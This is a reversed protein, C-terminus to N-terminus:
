PPGGRPKCKRNGVNGNSYYECEEAVSGTQTQVEALVEDSEIEYILQNTNYSWSDTRGDINMQQPITMQCPMAVNNQYWTVGQGWIGIFDIGWQSGQDVYWGGGWM